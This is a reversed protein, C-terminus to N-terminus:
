ESRDRWCNEPDVGRYLKIASDPINLTVDQKDLGLLRQRNQELAIFAKISSVNGKLCEPYLSKLLQNCRALHLRLYRKSYDGLEDVLEDLAANSYELVQKRSIALDTGIHDPEDGALLRKM